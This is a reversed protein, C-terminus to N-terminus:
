LRENNFDASQSSLLPITKSPSQCKFYLSLQTLNILEHDVGGHCFGVGHVHGLWLVQRVDGVEDVCVEEEIDGDYPHEADFRHGWCKGQVTCLIHVSVDNFGSGSRSLENARGNVLGLVLFPMDCLVRVGVSSLEHLKHM